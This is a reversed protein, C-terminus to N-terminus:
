EQNNRVDTAKSIRSVLGSSSDTFSNKSPVSVPVKITVRTFLRQHVLLTGYEDTKGGDGNGALKSM